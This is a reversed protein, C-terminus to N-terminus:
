EDRYYAWYECLTQYLGRRGGEVMQAMVLIETTRNFKLKQKAYNARGKAHFYQKRGDKIKLLLQSHKGRTIRIDEIDCWNVRYHYDPKATQRVILGRENIIYIPYDTFMCYASFIGSVAGLCGILGMSAYAAIDPNRWTLWMYVGFAFMAWSGLSVIACRLPSFSFSQKM